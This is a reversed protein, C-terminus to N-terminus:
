LLSILLGVILMWTSMSAAYIAMSASDAGTDLLRVMPYGIALFLVLVPALAWGVLWFIFALTLFVSHYIIM